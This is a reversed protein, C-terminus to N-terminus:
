YFATQLQICFGLAYCKCGRREARKKRGTRNYGVCLSLFLCTFTNYTTMVSWVGLFTPFIWCGIHLRHCMWHVTIFIDIFHALYNRHGIILIDARPRRQAFRAPWVQDTSRIALGLAQNICCIYTIYCNIVLIYAVISINSGTTMLWHCLNVPKTNFYSNVIIEHLLIYKM